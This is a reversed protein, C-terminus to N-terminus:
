HGSSTDPNLRTCNPSVGTYGSPCTGGITGAPTKDPVIIPTNRIRAEEAEHAKKEELHRRREEDANILAPPRDQDIISPRKESDNISPRKESDNISPRKESDNISPRKESDNISPRKESDNVSPRKESDNVPTKKESNLNTGPTSKVEGSTGTNNVAAPAPKEPAGAVKERELPAVAVPKEFGEKKDDQKIKEQEIRPVEKVEPKADSKTDISVSQNAKVAFFEKVTDDAGRKGVLVNGEFTVVRSGTSKEHETSFTTGRVGAVIVPTKVNYKNKDNDYKQKVTSKIRGQTVELSVNKQDEKPNYLYQQIKMNSNPYIEIVNTDMMALRAASMKQTIITESEFVKDGTKLTRKQGAASVAEVTGKVLTVVGFGPAATALLPILLLVFFLSKM